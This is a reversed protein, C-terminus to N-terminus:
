VSVIPQHKAISLAARDAEKAPKDVHEIDGNGGKSIELEADESSPVESVDSSTPFRYHKFQRIPVGIRFMSQVEELGRGKCEPVCFFVFIFSLVAMSGFVFGIQAGIARIAYALSFSIVFSAYGTLVPPLGLQSLKVRM